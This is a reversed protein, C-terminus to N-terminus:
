KGKSTKLWARYVGPTVTIEPLEVLGKPVERRGSYGEDIVQVINGAVDYLAWIRRPNGNSDNTACLHQVMTPAAGLDYWPGENDSETSFRIRSPDIGNFYTDLDHQSVPHFPGLGDDVRTLDEYIVFHPTKKLKAWERAQQIASELHM